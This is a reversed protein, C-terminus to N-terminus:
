ECPRGVLLWESKGEPRDDVLVGAYGPRVLGHARYGRSHAGREGDHPLVVVGDLSWGGGAKRLLAARGDFSFTHYYRRVGRADTPSHRMGTSATQEVVLAGDPLGVLERQGHVAEPLPEPAGVALSGSVTMFAAKAGEGVVVGRRGAVRAARPTPCEAGALALSVSRTKGSALEASSLEVGGRTPRVLILHGGEAFSAWGSCSPELEKLKRAGSAAVLMLDISAATGEGSATVVCSGGLCAGDWATVPLPAGMRSGDRLSHLTTEGFYRTPSVDYDIRYRSVLVRSGDSLLAKVRGEAALTAADSLAGVDPGDPDALSVVFWKPAAADVLFRLTGDPELAVHETRAPLEVSQLEGTPGIFVLVARGAREAVYYSRDAVDAVHLLHGLPTPVAKPEAVPCTRALAPSDRAPPEPADSAGLVVHM